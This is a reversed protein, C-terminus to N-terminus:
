GLAEGVAADGLPNQPHDIQELTQTRFPPLLAHHALGHM